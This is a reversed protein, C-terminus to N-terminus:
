QDYAKMNSQTVAKTNEGCKMREWQRNWGTEYSEYDDGNTGGMWEDKPFKGIEGLEEIEEIRICDRDCMTGKSEFAGLTIDEKSIGFGLEKDGTDIYACHARDMNSQIENQKEGGKLLLGNWGAYGGVYLFQM